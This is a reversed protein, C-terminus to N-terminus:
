DMSASLGRIWTGAGRMNQEMARSSARFTDWPQIAQEEVEEVIFSIDVGNTGSLTNKSVEKWRGRPGNGAVYRRQHEEKLRHKTGLIDDPVM